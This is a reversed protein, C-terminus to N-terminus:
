EGTGEPPRRPRRLSFGRLAECVLFSMGRLRRGRAARRGGRAFTWPTRGLGGAGAARAACGPRPRMPREMLVYRCEDYAHDEGSTDVDEVRKPDYLLGPLTRIFHKCSSFVQFM